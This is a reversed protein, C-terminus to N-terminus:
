IDEFKSLGGDRLGGDRLGGDRLGGNAASWTTIKKERVVRGGERCAGEAGVGSLKCFTWNSGNRDTEAQKPGIRDM